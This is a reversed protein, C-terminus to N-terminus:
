FGGMDGEFPPPPPPIYDNGFDAGGGFGEDPFAVPPPPPPPPVDGGFDDMPPPPVFGGDPSGFDDFTTPPPPFNPVGSRSFGGGSSSGTGSSGGAGKKAMRKKFEYRPRTEDLALEQAETVLGPYASRDFAHKEKLYQLRNKEQEAALRAKEKEDSQAEPGTDSIQAAIKQKKYETVARQRQEVWQEEEELSAREGSMRAKDFQAQEKRHDAFGKLRTLEAVQARASFSVGTLLLFQLILPTMKPRMM